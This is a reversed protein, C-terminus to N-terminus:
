FVPPGCSMCKEFAAKNIVGNLNTPDNQIQDLVNEGCNTGAGINFAANNYSLYSSYQAYYAVWQSTYPVINPPPKPVAPNSILITLQVQTLNYYSLAQQYSLYSPPPPVPNPLYPPQYPNNYPNFANGYSYRDYSLNNYPAINANRTYTNSLQSSVLVQPTNIYVTRNTNLLAAHLSQLLLLSLLSPLLLPLSHIM